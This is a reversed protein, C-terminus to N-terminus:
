IVIKDLHASGKRAKQRDQSKGPMKRDKNKKKIQKRKENKIGKQIRRILRLKKKKKIIRALVHIVM